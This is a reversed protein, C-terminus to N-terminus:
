KAASSRKQTHRRLKTILQQAEALQADLTARQGDTMEETIVEVSIKALMSAVAKGVTIQTATAKADVPASASVTAVDVARSAAVIAASAERSSQLRELPSTTKLSYAELEDPTMEDRLLNGIHWRVAQQIGSERDAGLGSSRYVEGALKRYEGSRGRMDAVGGIECRRRLEVLVVALNKLLIEPQHEVIAYAKVYATGRAVLAPTAEDQVDSSSLSPATVAPASPVPARRRRAPAKEGSM